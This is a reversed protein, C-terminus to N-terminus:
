ISVRSHLYDDEIAHMSSFAFLRGYRMFAESHLCILFFANDKLCLYRDVAIPFINFTTIFLSFPCMCALFNKVIIELLVVLDENASGRVTTCELLTDNFKM